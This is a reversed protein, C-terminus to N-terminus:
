AKKNFKIVRHVKKLILGHNLVQNLTRVHAVYNSKNYLSCLFKHSKKKKMREPLFIISWQSKKSYEVDVHTYGIDSHADYNKIFNQSFAIGNFKSTNKEM